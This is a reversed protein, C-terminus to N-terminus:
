MTVDAHASAWEIFARTNVLDKERQICDRIMLVSFEPPIRNAYTVINKITQDSARASLAGCIAYLTAPDKPVDAKKPSMLIVDPSPLQRFIRLFGVLEGAPGDGVTGSFVEFEIESPLGTGLARSVFEWSRPTPFSKENKAPDFSHLLGPRFRVFAIIETKIKNQLAWAVWDELDVDFQLHVFRNALASPMRSTVARDAERNGAAIISWGSPLTYEGLKRDLVLQYCGAQVSAPAANLEDLFLIGKGKTPLFSPPCWIARTGEIKPIGRLDVPDLLVARLDVLDVGREEAIQRVVQSKGVGPPGWVFTAQQVNLLSNLAKKVATPKMTKFGEKGSRM